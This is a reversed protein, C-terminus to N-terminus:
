NALNTKDSGTVNTITIPSTRSSRTITDGIILNTGSVWAPRFPELRIGVTVGELAANNFAIRLNGHGTAANSLLGSASLIAAVLLPILFDRTRTSSTPHSKM